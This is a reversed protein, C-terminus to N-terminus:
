MFISGAYREIVKITLLNSFEPLNYKDTLKANFVNIKIQNYKDYM